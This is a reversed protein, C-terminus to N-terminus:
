DGYFKLYLHVEDRCRRALHEIQALVRRSVDDASRAQIIALEDLFQPMQLTNFVTDGHEDIFRWCQFSDESVTPILTNLVGAPDDVRELEEGDETELRCDVSVTTQRGEPTRIVGLDAALAAMTFARVEDAADQQEVGHRRCSRIRVGQRHDITASRKSRAPTM